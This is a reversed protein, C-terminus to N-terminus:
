LESGLANLSLNPENVTWDVMEDCRSLELDIECGRGDEIDGVFLEKRARRIELYQSDLDDCVFKFVEVFSSFDQSEFMAYLKRLGQERPLEKRVKEWFQSERIIKARFEPPSHRQFSKAYDDLFVLGLSMVESKDPYELPEGQERNADFLDGPVKKEKIFLNLLSSADVTQKYQPDLFSLM